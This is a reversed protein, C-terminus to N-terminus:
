ELNKGNFTYTKGDLIYKEGSILKSMSVGNSIDVPKTTKSAVTKSKSFSNDISDGPTKIADLKQKDTSLKAKGTGGQGEFTVQNAGIERLFNDKEDTNINEFKGEPTSYIEGNKYVTYKVPDIGNSAGKVIKIDGETPVGNDSLEVHKWTVEGKKNLISNKETVVKDREKELDSHANASLSRNRVINVYNNGYYNKENFNGADDIYKKNNVLLDLADTKINNSKAFNFAAQYPNTMPVSSGDMLNTVWKGNKFEYDKIVGKITSKENGDKDVTVQSGYPMGSHLNSIIRGDKTHEAGLGQNM